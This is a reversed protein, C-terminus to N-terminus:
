EKLKVERWTTEGHARLGSVQSALAAAIQAVHHEAARRAEEPKNSVIAEIMKEFESIDQYYSSLVPLLQLKRRESVEYITNFALVYAINNSAKVVIRWFRESLEQARVPDGSDSRMEALLSLLAPALEADQRETALRIVDPSISSRLEIVSRAVHLDLAGDEKVLLLSIIDLRASARFDLVRTAGGQQIAILRIQQLRKLAERLAGRNVGFSDCLTRESPLVSDVPFQGAVIARCLRDFVQESLSLREVPKLIAESNTTTPM